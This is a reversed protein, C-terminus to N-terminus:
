NIQGDQRRRLHGRKAKPSDAYEQSAAVLVLAWNTKAPPQVGFSFKGGPRYLGPSARVTATAQLFTRVLSVLSVLDPSHTRPTILSETTWQSKQAPQELCGTEADYDRPSDKKM